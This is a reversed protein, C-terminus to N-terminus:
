HTCNDTQSKLLLIYNSLMPWDMPSVASVNNKGINFMRVDRDALGTCYNAAPSIKM